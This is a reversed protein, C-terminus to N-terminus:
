VSIMSRVYIGVVLTKSIGRNCIVLIKLKDIYGYRFIFIDCLAKILKIQSLKIFKVVLKFVVFKLISYIDYMNFISLTTFDLPSYMSPVACKFRQM